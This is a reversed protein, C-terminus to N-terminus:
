NMNLLYIIVNKDNINMSVTNVYMYFLIHSMIKEKRRRSLVKKREAELAMQKRDAESLQAEKARRLMKQNSIVCM